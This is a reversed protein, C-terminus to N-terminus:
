EGRSVVGEFGCSQPCEVDLGRVLDHHTGILFGDIIKTDCEPCRVDGLREPENHRFCTKCPLLRPFVDHIRELTFRSGSGNRYAAGNACLPEVRGDLMATPDARHYRDSEHRGVVVWDPKTDLVRVSTVAFAEIERELWQDTELVRLEAEYRDPYARLILGCEAETTELRLVRKRDRADAADFTEEVVTTVTWTRRDNNVVLLDHQEVNEITAALDDCVIPDDLQQTAKLM